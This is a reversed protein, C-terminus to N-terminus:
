YNSKVLSHTLIAVIPRNHSNRNEDFFELQPTRTPLDSGSDVIVSCTVVALSHRIKFLIRTYKWHTTEVSANGDDTQCRTLEVEQKYFEALM